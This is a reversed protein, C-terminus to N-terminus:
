ISLVKVPKIGKATGAFDQRVSQHFKNGRLFENSGNERVVQEAVRKALVFGRAITSAEMDNWVTSAANWIDDASAVGNSYQQLLQSHRKSMMPFVSLDLNNVYPMQPAQPEWHWGEGECTSM